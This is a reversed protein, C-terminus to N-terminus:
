HQRICVCVCVHVCVCVCVCLCICACVCVCARVRACKCADLLRHKHTHANTHSLYIRNSEIRNSIIIIHSFVHVYLLVTCMCPQYFFYCQLHGDNSVDM